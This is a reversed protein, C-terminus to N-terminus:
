REAGSTSNPPPQVKPVAQVQSGVRSLHHQRQIHLQRSRLTRANVVLLPCDRNLGNHQASQRRHRRHGVHTQRVPADLVGAVKDDDGEDPLGHLTAVSAALVSMQCFCVPLCSELHYSGSKCPSSDM